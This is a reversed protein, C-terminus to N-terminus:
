RQRMLRMLLVVKCADAPFHLFTHPVADAPQSVAHQGKAYQACAHVSFFPRVQRNLRSMYMTTRGLPGFQANFIEHPEGNGRGAQQMQM